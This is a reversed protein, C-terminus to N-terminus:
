IDWLSFPIRAGLLLATRMGYSLHVQDNLQNVQSLLCFIDYRKIKVVIKCRIAPYFIMLSTSVTIENQMLTSFINPFHRRTPYIREYNKWPTNKM